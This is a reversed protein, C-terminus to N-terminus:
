GYTETYISIASTIVGGGGPATVKIIDDDGLIFNQNNPVLVTTQANASGTDLLADWAAGKGSDLEFTVGAQTPAASYKVTAYLFRRMKGTPTSVSMATDGASQNTLREIAIPGSLAYPTTKTAETM